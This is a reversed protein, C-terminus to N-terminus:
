VLSRSKTESSTLNISSNITSNILTPIELLNLMQTELLDAFDKLGVQVGEQKASTMIDSDFNCPRIAQFGDFENELNISMGHYTIWRRVAVGISAIKKCEGTKRRVWVGTPGHRGTELGLERFSAIIADECFRLYEHLGRRLIDGNLKFIPYVVLQGPGHWTADGGREIHVVPIPTDEPVNSDLTRRGTTIVSEHECFFIAERSKGAAVEDVRRKQLEWLQSYSPRLSYPSGEQSLFDVREWIRM